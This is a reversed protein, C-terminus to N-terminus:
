TVMQDMLMALHCGIWSLYLSSSSRVANLFFPLLASPERRHYLAPFILCILFAALLAWQDMPKLPSVCFWGSFLISM